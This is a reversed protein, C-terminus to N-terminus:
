LKKNYNPKKGSRDIEVFKGPPKGQPYKEKPSSINAKSRQLESAEKLLIEEQHKEPWKSLKRVQPWRTLTYDWPLNKKKEHKM